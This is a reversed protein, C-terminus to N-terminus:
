FNILVRGVADKIHDGQQVQKSNFDRTYKINNYLVGKRFCWILFSYNFKQMNQTVIHLPDYAKKIFTVLNLEGERTLQSIIWVPLM